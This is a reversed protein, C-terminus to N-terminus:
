KLNVSFRVPDKEQTKEIMAASYEDLKGKSNDDLPKGYFDEYIHEYMRVTSNFPVGPQANSEIVFVSGKKDKMVDFCIFPFKDFTDCFKKLVKQYEAPVQDANRLIYKFEMQEESDGKGTKAKGNSPLRQMWFFPSGRFCFFRHEEAKDVFESYTDFLSEDAADLEAATKFVQIGLGSHRSAPKAIVPFNLGLAKKKTLVTTPVYQSHGVLKHFEAKSGSLKIVDPHNYINESKIRGESLLQNVIESQYNLLPYDPNIDIEDINNETVQIFFKSGAFGKYSWWRQGSSRKTCLYVKKLSPYQDAVGETIFDDFNLLRNM